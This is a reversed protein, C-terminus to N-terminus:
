KVGLIITLRGAQYQMPQEAALARGAAGELKQRFQDMVTKALEVHNKERGRLVIEGKVKDGRRLFEEGRKVRVDMDHEGIRLTLRVVKIETQHSAAKQKRAEKEKQYKFQGYNTLKAVPPIAKPSVVVLDLERESAIALAQARSMVGLVEGTEGIVRVQDAQISQNAEYELATPEPKHYGRRKRHIRM